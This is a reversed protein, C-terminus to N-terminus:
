KNEGKALGDHPHTTTPPIFEANRQGRFMTPQVFTDSYKEVWKDLLEQLEKDAAEHEGLRDPSPGDIGWLDDDDEYQRVILRGASFWVRGAVAEVIHFGEEPMWSSKYEAIADERTAFPGDTFFEENSGAWWAWETKNEEM